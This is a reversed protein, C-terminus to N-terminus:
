NSSVFGNKRKGIFRYVTSLRSLQLLDKVLIDLRNIEHEIQGMFEKRTADDDFDERNLIEVMGKIVAIPTKLEHSADAIFRKQMKEGELAKSIDQFLVLCGSYKNKATVPVSISQYEVGKINIIKDMPKELIFADKIFESVSREYCDDMYTMNETKEDKIFLSNINNHMVVNGNQDLLMLPFPISTVVTLLQKNKLHADKATSKIEKQLEINEKQHINMSNRDVIEWLLAFALVMLVLLVYVDFRFFYQLFLFLIFLGGLLLYKNLKM